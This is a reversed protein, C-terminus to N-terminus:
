FTIALWKSFFVDYVKYGDPEQLILESSILATLASHVTSSAGLKYESMFKQSVVKKAVGEKAVAVLLAWQKETLLNKYSYYFGENQRAITDMMEDVDTQSIASGGKNYLQHCIFQVYYTHNRVEDLLYSATKKDISIGKRKFHKQIFSIYRSPPISKLEMLETTQYFPRRADNFMSNLLHKSSGSYIFNIRTHLQSKSRMLAEVNTEPYNLIQQFEDLAIVINKTKSHQNLYNFIEEITHKADKGNDLGLGISPKGTVEDFEINPKVRTVISKLQQLFRTTNSDMKGLVALGLQNAFESLNNTPMLDIYFCYTSKNKQKLQHFVHHILASKGMRRVAFLTVNRGTRMASVLRKSEEERDCFYEPGEYGKVPFPNINDKRM